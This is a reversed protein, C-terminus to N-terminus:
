EEWDLQRAPIGASLAYEAVRARAEKDGKRYRFVSGTFIVFVETSTSANIFWVAPKIAASLKEAIGPADEEPATFTIATWTSPQGPGPNEINWTETKSIQLRDLVSLDTLSEKLILGTLM